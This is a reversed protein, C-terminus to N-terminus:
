PQQQMNKALEGCFDMTIHEWKWEPIELPQLKGSPRQHEVKVEQCLLCKSIFEGIDEWWFIRKLNQYM